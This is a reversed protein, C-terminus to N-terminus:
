LYLYSMYTFYIIYLPAANASMTRLAPILFKLAAAHLISIIFSSFSFQCFFAWGLGYARGPMSHSWGTVRPGGLVMERCRKGGETDRKGYASRSRGM